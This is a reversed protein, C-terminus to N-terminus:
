REVFGPTEYDDPFSISWGRVREVAVRVEYGLVRGDTGNTLVVLGSGLAPHGEIWARYSNNAGGHHLVLGEGAGNLRPGLGHWSNAVRALMDARLESSLFDEDGMLARVFKAMDNASTWLGSAAMEPMAEYGRPLAVPDGNEDHARAINGHSEPLPNAFTSRDMGLPEFVYRRVAEEYTLGTVDEVLVQSVTIGGGSYDMKTGPEYQVIVRGHKAPGAGNLTELASPLDEGPQFDPFGHQSFGATHALIQRLTVPGNLTHRTIPVKWRVLYDNVDRDLELVGEQALRLVLAANVVKSVSGASFVTDADVQDEGGASLVGYGQVHVIEGNEIVAVAMGPVGYEAMREALTAYTPNDQGRDSFALMRTEFETVSGPSSTGTQAAAPSNTDDQSQACAGTSLTAATLAAAVALIPKKM